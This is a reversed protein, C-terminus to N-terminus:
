QSEQRLYNILIQLERVPYDTFLSKKSDSIALFADDLLQFKETWEVFFRDDTEIIKYKLPQYEDALRLALNERHDLMWAEGSRTSLFIFNGIIDIEQRGNEAHSIITKARKTMNMEERIVKSSVDTHSRMRKMKRKNM